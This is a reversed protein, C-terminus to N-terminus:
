SARLLINKLFASIRHRRNEYRLVSQSVVWNMQIVRRPGIWPKHGHWSNDSRRFSLLTGEEPPVEVIFDDLDSNSRLLRLRGGAEEWKPNLYVLVTILKTVSDTHIFGDRESCHGRVTFMTPRGTLDVGFKEEFAAQVAEGQLEDILSAFGPGCHQSMLPFSGAREVRPFGAHIEALCEAKVFGPVVVFDFPDRCLETAAFKALNLTSM